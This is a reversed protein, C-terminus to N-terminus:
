ARAHARGHMLAWRVGGDPDRLLRGWREFATEPLVAIRDDRYLTCPVPESM